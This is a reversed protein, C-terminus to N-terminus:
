SKRADLKSGDGPNTEIIAEQIKEAKKNKKNTNGDFRNQGFSDQSQYYYFFTSSKFRM